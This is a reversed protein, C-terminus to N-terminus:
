IASRGSGGLFGEKFDYQLGMRLGNTLVAPLGTRGSEMCTVLFQDADVYGALVLGFHPRSADIKTGHYGVNITKHSCGFQVGFKSYGLKFM